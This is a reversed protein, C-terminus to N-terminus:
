YYAADVISAPMFGDQVVPKNNTLYYCMRMGTLVLRSAAAPVFLQILQEPILDNHYPIQLSYADSAAGKATPMTCSAASLHITVTETHVPAVIDQKPIFAPIHVQLLHDSLKSVTLWLRFRERISTAPNFNLEGLEPIPFPQMDGAIFMRLSRAIAASFLNQLHKDQKEPLADGMLMRLSKAVKLAQGFVQSWSRTATSQKSYRCRVKRGM